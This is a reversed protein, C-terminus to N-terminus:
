PLPHIQRVLHIVSGDLVHFFPKPYLGIWFVLIVLPLLMVAERVTLDPLSAQPEHRLPGLAVRQMMWLMYSAALLIGGIALLTLPISQLSTGVLILFESTFNNTGPLGFSALSFILFLTIFRPMPAHLGGYDAIMRKHTRDYLLGVALFLAGTTMGHNFMQLVAGEIGQQNLVFIGLTVFGMHSISSYAILRKLDSQALAMAGGYLIAIISLWLVIPTFTVLASPLMPLCLRLFGYGGMKLLVGALIVSGATPAEAHADPLWTHFPFMPLKIAFALFLALFIWFQARESYIRATLHMMDFSHGGELYLGLIGILLFLSGLISYIVFKIGAPIRRPGGWLAILFYMPIMTTEWLMFFLFLDLAMFVVLMAGEVFLILMLFTRLRDRISNWSALVCLPCLLTTLLVMLLSIGDVGLAYEIHFTPMWEMREVFQMGQGTRDYSGWLVLALLLDGLTAGLAIWRVATLDKIFALVVMGSLPLLIILSLLHNQVLDAM